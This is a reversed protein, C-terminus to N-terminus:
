YDVLAEVEGVPRLPLRLPVNGDERPGYLYRYRALNQVVRRVYGRTEDFPIREVFVDLDEDGFERVWRGMAGPGANYSGVARPLVGHYQRFLRGIYWGGVRINYDPDFLMSERFEIHLTQAVRRTTPPIMQLLGIARASSVDRSNFGSEQRMIAYLYQRPLGAEDEAAEVAAAHPRPFGADWVWRTNTTPLPDLAGAHRSSLLFARRAEGLSLWTRALAEDARDAPLTARLREDVEDLARAADEDFGLARLWQAKPPLTVTPAPRAEPPPPPPEVTENRERLRAESLLAYWTLPRHAIMERWGRIAGPVDGSRARAMASWYMGRGRELHHSSMEGSRALADVSEAFRGATYLTWGLHWAAEVRLRSSASPRLQLFERLRRVASDTHRHHAELWAARYAAEDSWRGSQTRAVVDFARVSEDDRDARALSRAALFADEDRDPGDPHRSALTLFRNADVYRTRMGYCARGLLHLRRGEARGRQPPLPELIALAEAYRARHILTGARQMQEDVTLTLNARGLAALAERAQAADPEDVALKRWAALASAHDGNAELARAALSWARAHDIGPPPREVWARMVAAAAAHDGAALAQVAAQARDRPGGGHAALHEYKTRADAHRDLHALAEAEMRLIDVSLAPILPALGDLLTLARAHDRREIAVRARLYRIERTRLTAEPLRECLADAEAWAERRVAAVVADMTPTVTPVDAPAAASPADVSADVVARPNRADLTSTRPPPRQGSRPCASLAGLALLLPLRRHM